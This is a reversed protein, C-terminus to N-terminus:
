PRVRAVGLLIPGVAVGEGMVTLLDTGMEGVADQLTTLLGPGVYRYYVTFGSSPFRPSAPYTLSGALLRM